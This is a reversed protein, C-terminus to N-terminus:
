VNPKTSINCAFKTSVNCAVDRCRYRATIHGALGQAFGLQAFVRFAAALREKRHRRAEISLTPSQLANPTFSPSAQVM